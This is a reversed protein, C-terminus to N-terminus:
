TLYGMERAYSYLRNQLRRRARFLRSKVTGVPIGMVESVEQYSLGDLDSLVVPIRFDDPLEDLAAIVEDDIIRDFFRGEPDVEAIEAFVSREAVEDFAVTQPRRRARRFENIFANRLITMLWARSNTGLEFDDWARYARLLTEQVLDEARAVEGGALRLALGYLADLHALAEREFEARRPDGPADITSDGDAM